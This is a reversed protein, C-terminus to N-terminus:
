PWVGSNRLQTASAPDLHEQVFAWAPPKGQALDAPDLVRVGSLHRAAPSCLARMTFHPRGIVGIPMAKAVDKWRRWLHFSVLSDGGMLWVFRAQAFTTRLATITDITFRTGLALEIPSVYIRPHKATERAREVRRELPAMGESTKLPNQPSVLWWVEDLRLRRLAILSIHRHADHAPNFSGGLLGIRQGANAHAQAQSPLTDSEFRAKSVSM